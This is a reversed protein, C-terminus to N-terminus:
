REKTINFLPPAAKKNFIDFKTKKDINKIFVIFFLIAYIIVAVLVCVIFRVVSYEDGRCRNYLLVSSGVAIFAIATPAIIRAFISLLKKGGGSLARVSLLCACLYAATTGIPAVLMGIQSSATVTFCLVLKIICGISMSILPVVTRGRAELATNFLTLLPFIACAPALARLSASGFAASEASFLLSLVEYPFFFFGFSIPVALSSIILTLRLILGDFDATACRANAAALSPL